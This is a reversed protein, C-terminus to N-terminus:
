GNIHHREDGIHEILQHIEIHQTQPLVIDACVPDIGTGNHRAHNDGTGAADAVLDLCAIIRREAQKGLPKLPQERPRSIQGIHRLGQGLCHRCSGTIRM